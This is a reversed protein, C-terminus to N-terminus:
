GSSSEANSLKSASVSVAPMGYSVGGGRLLRGIRAADVPGSFLFGQVEDCGHERLFELQERTEVGEATVRIDSGHAMGVIMAALRCDGADRPIDQVFSRDIKLHDIALRQLYRLSSYGTGFDDIAIKVGMGSLDDLARRDHLSAMLVSETLELMLMSPDLRNDQLVGLVTDAFGRRRIQHGSVNVSLRFGEPAFPLWARAARSSARLCWEGIAGILGSEEAVPVFTSPPIDGLTPHRWRALAEVGVIAGTRLDVQPQYVVRLEERSLAARLDHELQLRQQFGASMDERYFEYGHRGLEKARYMAIDAKKTLSERDDGDGPFLSIGISGTVYLERGEVRFPRSLEDLIKRAVAAAALPRQLEPVIVTFEDGGVRCITDSERAVRRIRRAVAALLRDGVSHGLTDNIRKFGDLDLFMLAVLSDARRAHALALDLRDQFLQRNPLSTLPDYYALRHLRKKVQRHSDVDSFIGVYHTVAGRGEPSTGCCDSRLATISLWEPHTEGDKRRLWIEGQWRGHKRLARQVRRGFFTPHHGSRFLKATHGLVEDLTYGTSALFAPNASRIRGERDVVIVGGPMNEIVLAAQGLRRETRCTESIDRFSLVAGLVRGQDVIPISTYEVEFSSGDRRCFTEREVRKPVGRRLADQIPCSEKSYTRGDPTTAHILDHCSRGLMEEPGWGLMDAALRNVWATRGDLDLGVVGFGVSDLM